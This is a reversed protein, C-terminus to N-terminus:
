RDHERNKHMNRRTVKQYQADSLQGFTVWSEEERNGFTVTVEGYRIKSAM